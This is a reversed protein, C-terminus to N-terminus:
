SILVTHLNLGQVRSRIVVDGLWERNLLQLGADARLEAAGGCGRCIFLRNHCEAVEGDVNRLVTDGNAPLLDMQRGFLEIKQDHERPVGALYERVASQEM